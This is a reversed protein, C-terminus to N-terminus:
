GEKQLVENVVQLLNESPLGGETYLSNKLFIQGKSICENWKHHNALLMFLEQRLMQASSVAIGAQAKVLHQHYENHNLNFHYPIDPQLIILPKQFLAGEMATNSSITSVLDSANLLDQLSYHPPPLKIQSCMWETYDLFDDKHKKVILIIPLGILAEKLWNMIETNTEKTFPQTTFVMVYHNLDKINIDALLDRKTKFSGKTVDELKLSGIMRIQEEQIGKKIYWSKYNPGWVCYYSAFSPIINIDTLLFNQVNIFPINYKRSLISLVNGPHILESHDIIVGIPYNTLIQEGLHILAIGDLVKSCFWEFFKEMGFIPHSKVNSCILKIRLFLDQQLFLNNRIKILEEQFNFTRFNVPLDINEIAEKDHYNTILLLVQKNPFIKLATKIFQGCMLIMTNNIDRKFIKNEPVFNKFRIYFDKTDKKQRISRQQLLLNKDKLQNSITASIFNYFPATMLLSVNVDQYRISQFTTFLDELYGFCLLMHDNLYNESYM